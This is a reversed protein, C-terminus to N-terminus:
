RIMIRQEFRENASNTVRVVYVGSSLDMGSFEASSRPAVRTTSSSVIRGALDLIEIQTIMQGDINNLTFIGESPNPFISWQMASVEEIGITECDVASVNLQYPGSSNANPDDLVPIYYTGGLLDIYTYTTNGDPCVGTSSFQIVSDGPCTTLLIGFTNLWVPDQGCYTVTIDSCDPLNVAHWVVPATYPHGPIFDNVDTAGSNDGILDLSTGSPLLQPTVNQCQDNSPFGCSTGAVNITYPGTSGAIL